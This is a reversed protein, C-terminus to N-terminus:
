SAGLVRNGRGPTPDQPYSRSDADRRMRPPQGVPVRCAAGVAGLVRFAGPAIWGVLKKLEDKGAFAQDAQHDCGRQHVRRVFYTTIAPMFVQWSRRSRVPM